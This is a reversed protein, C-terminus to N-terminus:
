AEVMRAEVMVEAVDVDLSIRDAEVAEVTLGCIDVGADEM